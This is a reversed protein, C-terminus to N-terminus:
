SIVPIDAIHVHIPTQYSKIHYTARESVRPKFYLTGNKLSVSAVLFYIDEYMNLEQFVCKRTEQSVSDHYEIIAQSKKNFPRIQYTVKASFKNTTKSIHTIEIESGLQQLLDHTNSVMDKQDDDLAIQNLVKAFLDTMFQEKEQDTKRNFVTPSVGVDYYKMWKETPRSSEAITHEELFPSLVIYLHDYRGTIFGQERLKRAFRTSIHHIEQHVEYINGAYPPLPKNRTPEEFLRIDLILKEKM